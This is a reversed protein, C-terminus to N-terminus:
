LNTIKLKKPAAPAAAEMQKREAKKALESAVEDIRALGAGRRDVGGNDRVWQQSRAIAEAWAEPAEEPDILDTARYPWTYKHVSLKDAEEDIEGSRHRELAMDAVQLVFLRTVTRLSSPARVFGPDYLAQKLAGYHEDTFALLLTILEKPELYLPLEAMVDKLVSYVLNARGEMRRDEELRRVIVGFYSARDGELRSLAKEIIKEHM